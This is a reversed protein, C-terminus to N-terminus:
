VLKPNNVLGEGWGEGWRPSPLTLPGEHPYSATISSIAKIKGIFSTWIWVRKVSIVNLLVGSFEIAANLVFIAPKKM